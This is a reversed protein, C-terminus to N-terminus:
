RATQPRRNTTRKSDFLRKHMAALRVASSEVEFVELEGDVVELTETGRQDDIVFRRAAFTDEDPGLLQGTAAVAAGRRRTKRGFVVQCKLGSDQPETPLDRDSSSTPM